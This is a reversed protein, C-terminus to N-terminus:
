IGIHLKYTISCPLNVLEANCRVQKVCNKIVHYDNQTCETQQSIDIQWTNNSSVRAVIILFHVSTAKLRM